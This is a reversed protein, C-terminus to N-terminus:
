AEALSLLVSQSLMVRVGTVSVMVCTDDAVMVALPGVVIQWPLETIRVADAPLLQDHLLPAVVCDIVTLADPVKLTVTVVLLGLPVQVLVEGDVVTVTFGTGVALIVGLPGVM